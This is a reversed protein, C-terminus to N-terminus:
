PRTRRPLSFCPSLGSLARCAGLAVVGTVVLMAALHVGVAALVLLASGSASIERLAASGGCLPILAPVLMWGAGHATAAIFSWLALGASGAPVRLPRCAGGRLHTVVIGLLLGGAMLQLVRDDVSLGFVVLTAVIAVSAAHGLAIPGLAQLALRRDRARWGWAAAPLWGTAPHLGHLAGLGAVALWPWLSSM